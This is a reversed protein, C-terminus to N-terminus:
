ENIHRNRGSNWALVWKVSIRNLGCNQSTRSDCDFRLGEAVKRLVVAAKRRCFINVSVCFVAAQVVYAHFPHLSRVAPTLSRRYLHNRGIEKLPRYLSDDLCMLHTVYLVTVSDDCYIFTYTKRLLHTSNLAGGSAVRTMGSASVDQSDQVDGIWYHIVLSLTVGRRANRIAYRGTQSTVTHQVCAPTPMRATKGRCEPPLWIGSDSRWSRRFTSSRRRSTPCVQRDAYFRSYAAAACWGWAVCCASATTPTSQMESWM